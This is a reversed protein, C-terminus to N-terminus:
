DFFLVNGSPLLPGPIHRVTPCCNQRRSAPSAPAYLVTFTHIHLPISTGSLAPKTGASSLVFVINRNCACIAPFTRGQASRFRLHCFNRGRVSSCAVTNETASITNGQLELATLAAPFSIMPMSKPVVFEHTATMSPLTHKEHHEGAAFSRVKYQTAPHASPWPSRSRLPHGCWVM